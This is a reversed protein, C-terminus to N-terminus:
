VEQWNIDERGGECKAPANVAKFFGHTRFGTGRVYPFSLCTCPLLNNQLLFMLVWGLM